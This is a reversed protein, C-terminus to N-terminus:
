IRDHARPRRSSPLTPRTSGRLSSGDGTEVGGVPVVSTQGGTHGGSGGPPHTTIREGPTLTFTLHALTPCTVTLIYVLTSSISERTVASGRHRTLGIPHPDLHATFVHDLDAVRPVAHCGNTTLTLRDGPFFKHPTFEATFKPVPGVVTVTLVPSIQEEGCYFHVAYTGPALDLNTAFSERWMGPEGDVAHLTGVGSTLLPESEIYAGGGEPPDCDTVTATVVEGARIQSPAISPTPASTAVASVAGYAVMGSVAVVVVALRAIRM